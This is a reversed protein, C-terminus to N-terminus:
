AAPSLQAGSSIPMWYCDFQLTGDTINATAITGIVDLGTVKDVIANGAGLNPTTGDWFDGSDIDTATTAALFEATNGTVGLAITATAGALNESCWIFLAQIWVRGTVTFVNVSGTAGNGSTGDFTLTKTAPKKPVRFTWPTSM